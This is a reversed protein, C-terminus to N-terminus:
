KIFENLYEENNTDVVSCLCCTFHKSEEIYYKKADDYLAFEITDREMGDYIIVIWM